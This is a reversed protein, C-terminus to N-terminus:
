TGLARAAPARRGAGTGCPESPGRHTGRDGPCPGATGHDSRGYPRLTPRRGPASHGRPLLMRTLKCVEFSSQQPNGWQWSIKYSIHGSIRVKGIGKGRMLHPRAGKLLGRKLKGGEIGWTGGRGWSEAVGVGLLNDGGVRFHWSGQGSVRGKRGVGGFHEQLLQDVGGM